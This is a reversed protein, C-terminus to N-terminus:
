DDTVDPEFFLWAVAPFAARFDREVANIAPVLGSELGDAMRAKVAVVVDPGMRLTLLNFVETVEPRALLFARMDERVMPEASQGILLAKVEVAIFWAIVLLLVGIGLTGIADYVPNGTMMTALVALLAFTLGLLAAFDEGFIVILESTRSERFWRLFSRGRREKNVEQICARFATGEVIIGFVLVAIAIWESKLAEPHNLKHWGEYLSFMGGVTFLIIAVLFSWFYISKGYGLPHEETAPKRTQKLGLLLLVQNGSDALSHIAEALMAGSGTIAAAVGKAIAIALNAGLAYLISRLTNAGAM